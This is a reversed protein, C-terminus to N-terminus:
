YDCMKEMLFRLHEQHHEKNACYPHADLWITYAGIEAQLLEQFEPDSESYFPHKQLWEQLRESADCWQNTAALARNEKTLLKKAFFYAILNGPVSLLAPIAFIAWIVLFKMIM